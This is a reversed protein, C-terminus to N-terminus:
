KRKKPAPLIPSVLEVISKLLASDEVDLMYYEKANPYPIGLPLNKCIDQLIKHQKIFLTDDCLLFIAKAVNDGQVGMDQVYICYEGFMKKASFQYQGQLASDLQELVFDKFSEVVM